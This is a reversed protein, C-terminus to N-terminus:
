ARALPDCEACLFPSGTWPGAATTNDLVAAPIEVFAAIRGNRIQESLALRERDTLRQSAHRYRASIEPFSGGGRNCCTARVRQARPRGACTTLCRAGTGDVLVIAKDKVDGVNSLRNAVFIGGFMLVPMLTVSLLFAKTAVMAGYERRAITWVKRNM